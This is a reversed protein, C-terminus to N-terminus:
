NNDLILWEQGPELLNQSEEPGWSGAEYSPLSFVNKEWHKLVPTFLRWSALIEDIQVFLTHDGLLADYILKEYAEPVNKQNASIKFGFTIPDIKKEIFDSQSYIKFNISSNPQIKIHLVNSEKEPSLPSKKFVIAIETSQKELRKGARIYFPVGSWRENDIFLKTALYTESQSDKSVGVEEKYGKVTEQNVFGAGYQGRIVSSGLEELNFPRITNLVKVKEAHLDAVSDTQPREMAILALMQIVHNQVVDRLTGTKEWFAARTGIGISEALTIQVQEIFGHNWISELLPNEFRLVSLNQVGEKGTYHDILYIQEEALYNLINKQLDLASDLDYGFPKEIIVKSSSKQGILQHESLKQIIEPFYLPETALYFIYNKQSGIKKDIEALLEKLSEYGEDDRFDTKHYTFKDKLREWIGNEPKNRSFNQLSQLVKQQFQERDEDRRGIGVLSFNETICGNYTLNYVAPFLKRASLDGTAGFVILVFPENALQNSINTEAFLNFYSFTILFLFFKNIIRM